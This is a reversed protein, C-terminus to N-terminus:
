LVPWSHMTQLIIWSPLQSIWDAGENKGQQLQEGDFDNHAVYKFYWWIQALVMPSFDCAVWPATFAHHTILEQFTNFSYDDCAQIAQTNTVHRVLSCAYAYLTMHYAGVNSRTDTM